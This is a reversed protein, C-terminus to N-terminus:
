IEDITLKLRTQKKYVQQHGKKFYDVVYDFYNETDVDCKARELIFFM